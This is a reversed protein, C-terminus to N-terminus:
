GGNYSQSQFHLRETNESLIENFLKWFLSIEQPSEYKLEMTSLRHIHQIAPHYMSLTLTKYGVCQSHSGDFYAEECQFPHEPGDKDMDITLQAM